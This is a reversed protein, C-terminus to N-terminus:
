IRVKNKYCNRRVYGAERRGQAPGVFGKERPPAQWWAFPHARGDEAMGSVGAGSYKSIRARRSAM